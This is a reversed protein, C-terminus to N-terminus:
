LNLMLQKPPPIPLRAPNLIWNQCCLTPEIGVRLVFPRIKSANKVFGFFKFRKLKNKGTIKRANSVMM